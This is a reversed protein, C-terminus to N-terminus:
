RNNNVKLSDLTLHLKNRKEAVYINYFENKM